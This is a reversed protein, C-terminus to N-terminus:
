INGKPVSGLEYPHHRGNKRKDAPILQFRVYPTYWSSKAIERTYNQIGIFDPDAKMLQDDHQHVIKDLKKLIPLDKEPYGMGALPEVFLRNLLADARQAALVHRESYDKPEIYSCSFTTGVNLNSNESKIQRIGQAQCLTAHHMAHLFQSIGRKGPAHIGLFYGAGTFVMPENLVMWHKVRDGFQQICVKTFEELWGLINRNKWGGKDQLCQPLDWHYITVWPTIGAELLADILKNYFLVGKQNVNGVGEPMIRTWSLSFRYHNLGIEKLIRIDENFLNYHDCAVRGNEGNQINRVKLHSPIGFPPRNVMM